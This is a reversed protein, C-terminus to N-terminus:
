YTKYSPFEMSKVLKEIEADIDKNPISSIEKDNLYKYIATTWNGYAEVFHPEFTSDSKFSSIQQYLMMGMEHNLFSTLLGIEYNSVFTLKSSENLAKTNFLICEKLTVPKKPNYNEWFSSIFDVYKFLQNIFQERENLTKQSIFLSKNMEFIKKQITLTFIGQLLAGVIVGIVASLFVWKQNSSKKKNM